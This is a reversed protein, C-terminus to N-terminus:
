INIFSLICIFIFQVLTFKMKNVDMLPQCGGHQKSSYSGSYEKTNLDNTFFHCRFINRSLM